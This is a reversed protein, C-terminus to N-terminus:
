RPLLYDHSGPGSGPAPVAAPQGGDGDDLRLWGRWVAVLLALLRAPAFTLMPSLWLVPWTVLQGVAPNMESGDVVVFVFMPLMASATLAFTVLGIRRRAQRCELPPVRRNRKAVAARIKGLARGYVRHLPPLWEAAAADGGRRRIARRELQVWGCLVTELGIAIYL